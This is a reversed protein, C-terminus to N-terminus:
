YNKELLLGANKGGQEPVLVIRSIDRLKCAAIFIKGISHVRHEFSFTPVTSLSAMANIMENNTPIPLVVSPDYLDTHEFSRPSEQPSLFGGYYNEDVVPEDGQIM